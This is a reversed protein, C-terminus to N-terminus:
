IVALESNLRDTVLMHSAKHTICFPPKSKEVISQPTVGCAWFVPVEGDKVKVVDGYDPKDLDHIGIQTPDGLHLPAGHVGPYRSTIQIARIADMPVLPRLNVVVNGSFRGVPVTEINSRFMAIDTGQEIHRLPVGSTMLAEEFSFSCGIAFTVLDSRWHESIDTVEETVVGDNFIRYMPLDTRVDIDHGLEPLMPDGADSVALVPCAKPNVRCFRLFEAAWDAPLICLNVQVVGPVIGATHTVFEGRRVHQRFAAAESRLNDCYNRDIKMM